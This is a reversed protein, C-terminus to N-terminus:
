RAPSDGGAFYPHETPEGALLKKFEASAKDRVLFAGAPTDIRQVSAEEPRSAPGVGGGSGLHACGASALLIFSLRRM